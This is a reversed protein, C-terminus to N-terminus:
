AAVEDLIQECGWNAVVFRQGAMNEIIDGVSVSHMPKYRTINQEPGINGVEFVGELGEAEIDAVHEYMGLELGLTPDNRMSATIYAKYFPLDYPNEASNVEDAQSKTLNIQFLKYMTM